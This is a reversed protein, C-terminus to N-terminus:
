GLLKKLFIYLSAQRVSLSWTYVEERRQHRVFFFSLLYFQQRLEPFAFARQFSFLLRLLLSTRVDIRLMQM